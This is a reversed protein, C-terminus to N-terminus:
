EILKGWNHDNILAQGPRYKLEYRYPNMGDRQPAQPRPYFGFRIYDMHTKFISFKNTTPGTFRNVKFPIGEYSALTMYIEVLEDLYEIDRTLNEMGWRSESLSKIVKEIPKVNLLSYVKKSKLDDNDLMDRIDFNMWTDRMLTELNGLTLGCIYLAASVGGGSAGTLASIVVKHDPVEKDTFTVNDGEKINGVAKVAK